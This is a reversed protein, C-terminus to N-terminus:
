QAFFRHETYPEFVRNMGAFYQYPFSPSLMVMKPIYGTMGRRNVYPELYFGIALSREAWPAPFGVIKVYASEISMKGSSLSPFHVSQLDLTVPEGKTRSSAVFYANRYAEYMRGVHLNFDLWFRPTLDPITGNLWDSKVNSLRAKSARTIKTDLLGVFHRRDADSGDKQLSIPLDVGGTLHLFHQYNRWTEYRALESFMNNAMTTIQDPRFSEFEIADITEEVFVSIEIHERQYIAPDYQMEISPFENRGSHLLETRHLIESSVSKYTLYGSVWYALIFGSVVVVAVNKLTIGRTNNDNKRPLLILISVGLLSLLALFGTATPLGKFKAYLFCARLLAGHVVLFPIYGIDIGATLLIGTNQLYRDAIILAIIAFCSRSIWMAAKKELKEDEERGESVDLVDSSTPEPSLAQADEKEPILKKFYVGCDFCSDENISTSGCKPCQKKSDGAGESPSSNAEDHDTKLTQTMALEIIAGVSEFTKHYLQATEEDLNVRQYYAKGTFIPDLSEAEVNFVRALRIRCDVSDVGQACEGRFTITYTNLDLDSRNM